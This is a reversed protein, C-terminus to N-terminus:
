SFPISLTLISAMSEFLGLTVTSFQYDSSLGGPLVRFAAISMRRFLPSPQCVTVSPHCPRGEQPRHARWGPMESASAFPRYFNAPKAYAYLFDRQVNHNCKSSVPTRSSAM